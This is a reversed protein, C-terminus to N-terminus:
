VPVAVEITYVCFLHTKTAQGKGTLIVGSRTLLGKDVDRGKNNLIHERVVKGQDFDDYRKFQALYKLKVCHITSLRGFFRITSLWKQSTGTLFRDGV